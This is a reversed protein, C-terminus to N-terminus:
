NMRLASRSGVSSENDDKAKDVAVPMEVPNEVGELDCCVREFTDTGPVGDFGATQLGHYM